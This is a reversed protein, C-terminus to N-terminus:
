ELFSFGASAPEWPPDRSQAPKLRSRPETTARANIGPRPPGEGKRRRAAHQPRSPLLAPFAAAESDAIAVQRLRSALVSSYSSSCWPSHASIRGPFRGIASYDASRFKQQSYLDASGKCPLSRLPPVRISFDGHFSSVISARRAMARPRTGMNTESARIRCIIPQSVVAMRSAIMKELPLRLRPCIGISAHATSKVKLTALRSSKFQIASNSLLCNLLSATGRSMKRSHYSALGFPKRTTRSSLSLLTPCMSMRGTRSCGNLSNSCPVITSLPIRPLESKEGDSRSFTCSRYTSLM